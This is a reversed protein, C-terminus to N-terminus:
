RQKLIEKSPPPINTSDGFAANNGHHQRIIEEPPPAVPGQNSPAKVGLHEDIVEASPPPIPQEDDSVSEEHEGGKLMEPPPPPVTEEAVTMGESQHKAIMHEPPPDPIADQSFANGEITDAETNAARAASNQLGSPASAGAVYIRLKRQAEDNIIAYSNIGATKLIAKISTELNEHYAPMSIRINEWQTSIEISYGAAQGLRNLVQWLPKETIPFPFAVSDFEGGKNSCHGTTFPSGLAMVLLGILIIKKSNDHSLNFRLTM